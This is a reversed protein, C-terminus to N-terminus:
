SDSSGPHARLRGVVYTREEPQAAAYGNSSAIEEIAKDLAAEAKQLQEDSRDLPIPEWEAGTQHEAFDQERIDLRRFTDNVDSLVSELWEDGSSGFRGYKQFPTGPANTLRYWITDFEKTKQYAPPGFDNSLSAIMGMDELLKIGQVFLLGNSLNM